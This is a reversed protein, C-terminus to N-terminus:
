EIIRNNLNDNGGGAGGLSPHRSTGQFNHFKRRVWAVGGKSPCPSTNVKNM